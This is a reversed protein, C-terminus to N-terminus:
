PVRRKVVGSTPWNMRCWNEACSTCRPEGFLYIHRGRYKLKQAKGCHSCVWGKDPTDVVLAGWGWPWGVGEIEILPSPM